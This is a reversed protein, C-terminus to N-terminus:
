YGLFASVAKQLQLVAIVLVLAANLVNTHTSIWARVRGLVPAAGEGKVLVLLVPIGIPLLAVLAFTGLVLANAAPELNAIRVDLAALVACSLNVPNLVFVGVGLALSRGPTFSEVKQLWGPLQPAADAVDLPTSARAMKTVSTQGRRFIWWAGILLLVGLLLRLIPVWVPPDNLAHVEFFGFVVFSVGVGIAVGLAWGVFFFVGNLRARRSLLIAVLAMIALPSVVLGFALPVLSLVLGTM